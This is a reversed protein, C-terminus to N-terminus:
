IENIIIKIEIIKISNIKNQKVHIDFLQKTTEEIWKFKTLKNIM